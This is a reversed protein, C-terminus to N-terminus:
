VEFDNLSKDIYMSSFRCMTKIMLFTTKTQLPDLLTLFTNCIDRGFTVVIFELISVENRFIIYTNLVFLSAFTYGSKINWNSKYQTAYASFRLFIIFTIYIEYILSVAKIQMKKHGRGELFLLGIFSTM